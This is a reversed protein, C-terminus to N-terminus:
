KLLWSCSAISNDVITDDQNDGPPIGSSNDVSDEIGNVTVEIERSAIVNNAMDCVEGIGTIAVSTAGAPVIRFYYTSTDGTAPVLGAFDSYGLGLAPLNMSAPCPPSGVTPCLGANIILMGGPMTLEIKAREIGAQALYFAQTNKEHSGSVNIVSELGHFVGTSMIALLALFVIAFILVQAKM